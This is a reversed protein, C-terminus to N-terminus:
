RYGDQTPESALKSKGAGLIKEAGRMTRATHEADGYYPIVYEILGNGTSLRANRYRV